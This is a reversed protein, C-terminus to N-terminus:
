HQGDKVSSLKDRCIQHGEGTYFKMFMQGSPALKKWASPLVSMVFAIVTVKRLKEFGDLFFLVFARSNKRSVYNELGTQSAVDVL